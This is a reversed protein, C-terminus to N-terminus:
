HVDAEECPLTPGEALVPLRITFCAGAGGPSEVAIDGGHDRAISHCIALGLGTGQEGKTTFFPEFIHELADPPIGTGTDAVEVHVWGDEAFTRITLTGGNPMADRANFILNLLIEAMQEASACVPPLAPDYARQVQINRRRLEKEVLGLVDEVVANLVIARRERRPPRSFDRLQQVLNGIARLQKEMKELDARMHPNSPCAVPCDERILEILGLIGTLPNNIEHAITAAMRGLSSLKETQRLAAHARELERTREQVKQELTANLEALADTSDKLRLMAQVRTLLAANGESCDVCEDAGADLAAAMDEDEGQSCLMIVPIFPLTPDAKLTRVFRFGEGDPLHADVLVLHPAATRVMEYGATANDSRSVIYGAAQLVLRARRICESSRSVVLINAFLSM